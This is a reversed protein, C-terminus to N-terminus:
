LARKCFLGKIKDFRCVLAVVYNIIYRASKQSHYRLIAASGTEPVQRWSCLVTIAFKEFTLGGSWRRRVVVISSVSSFNALESPFPLLLAAAFKEFPVGSSWRNCSVVTSSVQSFNALEVLFFSSLFFSPSTSCRIEWFDATYHNQVPFNLLSSIRSFTSRSCRIPTSFPVSSRSWRAAATARASNRLLWVAASNVIWLSELASKQSIWSSCLCV